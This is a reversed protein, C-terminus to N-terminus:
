NIRKPLCARAYLTLVRTCWPMFTDVYCIWQLSFARHSRMSWLKFTYPTFAHCCHFHAKFISACTRSPSRSSTLAPSRSLPHILACVFRLVQSPAQLHTCSIPLHACCRVHWSTLAGHRQLFSLSWSCSHPATFIDRCCSQRPFFKSVASDALNEVCPHLHLTANTLAPNSILIM